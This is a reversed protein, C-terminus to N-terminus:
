TRWTCAHPAASGCIRGSFSGATLGSAATIAPKEIDAVKQPTRAIAMVTYIKAKEGFKSLREKIALDNKTLFANGDAAPLEKYIGSKAGLSQNFAKLSETFTMKENSFVLANALQGNDLTKDTELALFPMDLAPLATTMAGTITKDTQATTAPTAVTQASATLGLGLCATIILTRISKNM